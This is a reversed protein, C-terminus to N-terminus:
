ALLLADYGWSNLRIPTKYNYRQKARLALKIILFYVATNNDGIGKKKSFYNLLKIIVL